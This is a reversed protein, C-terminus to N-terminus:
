EKLREIIMSSFYNVGTKISNEDAAFNPSHPMSIVGNKYDSAGILFYVSPAYEQYYAFDDSRGDPIVGQLSIASQKGYIDSISNTVLPTLKEDNLVLAIEYSYAIDVLNKSYNSLLFKQKLSSLVSDLKYENSASLYAKIVIENEKEEIRFNSNVTVYDKFITKPNALGIEADMLNRVDWFKSDTAVNQFSSILEKTYNIIEDKDETKKLVVKLDKYDAFLNRSRAAIVGQPMPSVHLAYIEDPNIIDFLGDDIMAKAGKWNEESPQFVFYITGTLSDKLNTLVNAIGLGITTHIDHGCIHRVGKNKSSFEVVDPFESSLADIDARWAIRKGKKNTKLIGVVGYGGINTHVELGLSKLYHAIKQSTRKEQEALEPYTHLDRRVKILSDFIKDTHQQVAKHITHDTKSNQGFLSFSLFIFQVSLAITILKNNSIM